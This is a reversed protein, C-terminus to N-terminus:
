LEIQEEQNTTIMLKLNQILRLVEQKDMDLDKGGSSLRTFEADRVTVKTLEYAGFAGKQKIYEM